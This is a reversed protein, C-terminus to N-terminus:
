FPYEGFDMQLISCLGWEAPRFRGTVVNRARLDVGVHQSAAYLHARRCLYPDGVVMPWRSLHDSIDSRDAAQRPRAGTRSRTHLRRRGGSVYKPSEFNALIQMHHLSSPSSYSATSM